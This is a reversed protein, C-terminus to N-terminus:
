KTNVFHVKILELNLLSQWTSKPLSSLTLLDGIQNGADNHPLDILPQNVIQDFISDDSEEGETPVARPLSLLSPEDENIARLPVSTYQAKNAWLYLGLYGTHSTVLFDGYPSWSLSTTVDDVKFWDIMHGTPLDWTRVTCDLSSTVLWRGDPSFCHDTIPLTHGQFKRVIRIAETDVIRVM